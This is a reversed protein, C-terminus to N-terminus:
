SVSTKATQGGAGSRHASDFDKIVTLLANALFEIQANSITFPPALLLHDGRKGDVSGQMPYTLVGAELLDAAIRNAIQAEPPFSDLGNRVFEIGLLLGMGRIDGVVSLKKLPDLAERLATGAPGVREFLKNDHIYDLVAVGAAASVPHASYTFGHHFVGSGREFASAVDESALVAGLPAYGSAAGKGVLILDPKVGWHEVAFCKGTRGMGTMIEDAILLIGRERCIAAIRQLYGKPPPVAGLTAGSVPELIFAAVTEVDSRALLRDLEDACDVNCEPFHLGLPCRYCYCEPIQGWDNLMPAFPERRKVNGSVSLAGLTTGHYSQKRSVIRVRKSEGRELFYQRALKIATETAESGGSTLYARGRRFNNPALDLLRRALQASPASELQSSHVYALRESQDFMARAVSVVGHGITVVAAGGAADLFRRGDATFLYCGEGRVAQPYSKRFDRPFVADSM